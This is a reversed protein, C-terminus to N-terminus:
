LAKKRVHFVWMLHILMISIEKERLPHIATPLSHNTHYNWPTMLFGATKEKLETMRLTNEWSELHHSTSKDDHAWELFRSPPFFLSSARERQLFSGHLGVYWMGKYRMPWFKMVSGCTASLFISEKMKAAMHWIFGPETIFFSTSFPHQFLLQLHTTLIPGLNDTSADSPIGLYACCHKGLTQKM